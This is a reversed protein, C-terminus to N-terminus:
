EEDSTWLGDSTAAYDLSHLTVRFNQFRQRTTSPDSTHFRKTKARLRTDIAWLLIRLRHYFTAFCKSSASIILIRRAQFALQEIM